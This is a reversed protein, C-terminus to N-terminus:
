PRTNNYNRSSGPQAARLGQLLSPRSWVKGHQATQLHPLIIYKFTHSITSCLPCTAAIAGDLRNQNALLAPQHGCQLRALHVRRVLSPTPGLVSLLLLLINKQWLWIWLTTQLTLSADSSFVSPCKNTCCHYSEYM